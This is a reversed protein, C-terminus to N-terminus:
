NSEYDTILVGNLHDTEHQIIRALLGKVKLKFKKGNEDFAEVKLSKSRKIPIFINPLSLCGEETSEIKKSKKIIEPNIFAWYKGMNKPIVFLRINRGIQCASLGIGNNEQIVNLMNNALKKIDNDIEKIPLSKKRLFLNNKGTEIKM